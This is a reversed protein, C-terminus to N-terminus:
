FLKYHYIFLMGMCLQEQVDEFVSKVNQFASSDKDHLMTGITIGAEKLQKAIEKMGWGEMGKSSGTYNRDKIVHQVAIPLGTIFDLAIVTCERAWWGPHSWAGDVVITVNNKDDIQNRNDEIFDRM